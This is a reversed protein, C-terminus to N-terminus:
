MEFSTPNLAFANNEFFLGDLNLFVSGNGNVSLKQQVMSAHM